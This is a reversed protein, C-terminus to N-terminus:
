GQNYFENGDIDEFIYYYAKLKIKALSCFIQIM